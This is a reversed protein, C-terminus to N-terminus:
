DQRSKNKEKNSMKRNSREDEMPGDWERQASSRWFCALRSQVWAAVQPNESIAQAASSTEKRFMVANLSITKVSWGINSTGRPLGAVLPVASPTLKPRGFQSCGGGREWMKQISLWTAPLGRDIVGLLVFFDWWRPLATQYHELLLSNVKHHWRLM